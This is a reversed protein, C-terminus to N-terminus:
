FLSGERFKFHFYPRTKVFQILSQSKTHGSHILFPSETFKPDYNVNVKVRFIKNSLMVVTSSEYFFLKTIFSNDGSLGYQRYLM